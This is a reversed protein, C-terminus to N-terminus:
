DPVVTEPMTHNLAEHAYIRSPDVSLWQATKLCYCRVHGMMVAREADYTCLSPHATVLFFEKNINVFRVIDTSVLHRLEQETM